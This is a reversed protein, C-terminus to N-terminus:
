QWTSTDTGDIALEDDSLATSATVAAFFENDEPWQVASLDVSVGFASSRWGSSSSSEKQRNAAGDTLTSDSLTYQHCQDDPRPEIAAICIVPSGACETSEIHVPEGDNMSFTNSESCTTM